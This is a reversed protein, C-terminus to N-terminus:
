QVILGRAEKKHIYDHNIVNIGASSFHLQGRVRTTQM